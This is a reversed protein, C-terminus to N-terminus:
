RRYIVEVRFGEVTGYPEREIPYCGAEGGVANRWDRTEPVLRFGQRTLYAEADALTKFQLEIKM